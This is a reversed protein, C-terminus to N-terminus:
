GQTSNNWDSKWFKDVGGRDTCAKAQVSIQNFNRKKHVNISFWCRLRRIAALDLGAAQAARIAQGFVILQQADFLQEALVGNVGARARQRLPPLL